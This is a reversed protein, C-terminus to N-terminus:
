AGLGQAPPVTAAGRIQKWSDAVPEILQIVETILARDNRLNALSLRQIAYDYLGRLNSALGGGQPMNLGAKLGEELIRVAKGIAQGKAEIEGREMAGRAANLSQILGDFLMSVLQHPDAASVGTDASVRKYASAARSNVSTFM